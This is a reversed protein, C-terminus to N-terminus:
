PQALVRKNMALHGQLMDHVQTTLYYPVLIPPTIRRILVHSLLPNDKAASCTFCRGHTICTFQCTPQNPRFLRALTMKSHANM